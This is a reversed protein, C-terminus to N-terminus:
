ETYVRGMRDLEVLAYERGWQTISRTRVESPENGIKNCRLVYEIGWAHKVMKFGRVVGKGDCHIFWPIGNVRFVKWKRQKKIM